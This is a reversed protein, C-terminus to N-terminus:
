EYPLTPSEFSMQEEKLTQGPRISARMSVKCALHRVKTVESLKVAASQAAAPNQVPLRWCVLGALISHVLGRCSNACTLKLAQGQDLRRSHVKVAAPTHIYFEFPLSWSAAADPNGGHQSELLQPRTGVQYYWLIRDTEASYQGEAPAMSPCFLLSVQRVAALILFTSSSSSSSSCRHLHTRIQSCFFIVSIPSTSSFFGMCPRAYFWRWM